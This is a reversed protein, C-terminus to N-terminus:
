TMNYVVVTAIGVYYILSMAKDTGLFFVGKEITWATLAHNEVTHPM